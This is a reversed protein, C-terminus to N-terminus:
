AVGLMSLVRAVTAKSLTEFDCHSETFPMLWAGNIMSQIELALIKVNANQPLKFAGRAMGKFILAEIRERGQDRIQTNLQRITPDFSAEYYFYIWVSFREPDKRATTFHARIYDAMARKPDDLHTDVALLVDERFEVLIAGVIEHFLAQASPFYYHVLSVPLKARRAIEVLSTKAPGLAMFSRLATRSILERTKAGDSRRLKAPAAKGLKRSKLASGGM